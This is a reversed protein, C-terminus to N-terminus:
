DTKCGCTAALADFDKVEARQWLRRALTAYRTAEETRGQRECLAQMGLAARASGADHALAELFGEEAVDLKGAALAAQGWVEMFYGGGGWAHYSYDAKTRDVCKALLKLGEDAAGTQCQLLGEVEWLRLDNSRSARATSPGGQRLVELEPKAKDPENRALAILAAYYAATAKNSTRYNAVVKEAEAWDREAMHLRFWTEWHRYGYGFAEAKIQRAERFRGAHILGKELMELQHDFQHDDRPKVNMEQHYQRELEIAKSSRDVTKDWRGLRTALHAQMHWAHPIGPSSELYGEAHVWGLAPRQSLEYIHILEHHAGPHQPNIRLLAKYFPVEGFRNASGTNAPRGDGALKARAFWGEQDDEYLALLEDITKTAAVKREADNAFKGELNKMQLRATILLRERDSAKPLTAQAKKLAEMHNTGRWEEQARSLGWWAMACDPDYTAATEFSRAAEMWVYSYFYGLGQDFHAQCEPSRTSVRYTLLCQNPRIKAPPLKTLPLKDAKADAPTQAASPLVTLAITLLALTRRSFTM